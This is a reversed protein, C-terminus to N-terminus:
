KIHERDQLLCVLINKHHLQKIFTFYKEINEFDALPIRVLFNNVSLEEIM